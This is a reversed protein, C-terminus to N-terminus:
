TRKESGLRGSNLKSDWVSARVDFALGIAESLISRLWGFRKIRLKRGELSAQREGASSLSGSHWRYMACIEKTSVSPGIDWFKLWLDLDMAYRLSEDLRGAAEFASRRFLTAPQAVRTTIYRTWFKHSSGPVLTLIANGFPDLYKCSGLAFTSNPSSSLLNALIALGGPTYFDDDGLWTIFESNCKSVEVGLNIAASLGKPEARIIRTGLHTSNLEVGQVSSDVLTVCTTMGSFRISDLCQALYDGREGLTPVIVLVHPARHNPCTKV